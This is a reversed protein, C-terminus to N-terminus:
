SDWGGELKGCGLAVVCGELGPMGGAGMPPIGGLEMPPIGGLEMPPIGGLEILPIDGPGIPIGGLEM